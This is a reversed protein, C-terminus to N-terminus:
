KNYCVENKMIGSKKNMIVPKTIGLKSKQSIKPYIKFPVFNYVRRNAKLLNGSVFGEDYCITVPSLVFLSFCSFFLEGNLTYMLKM